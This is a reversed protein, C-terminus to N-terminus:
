NFFGIGRVTIPQRAASRAAPYSAAAQLVWGTETRMAM